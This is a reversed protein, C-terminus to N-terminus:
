RGTLKIQRTLHRVIEHTLSVAKNSEHNYMLSKPNASYQGAVFAADTLQKVLERAKKEKMTSHTSKYPEFWIDGPGCDGVYEDDGLVRSIAAECDPYPGDGCPAFDDIGCGCDENCLGDFDNDKLWTKVIEKVDM